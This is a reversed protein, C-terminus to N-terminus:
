KEAVANYVKKPQGRKQGAAHVGEFLEDKFNEAAALHYNEPHNHGRTMVWKSEADIHGRGKCSGSDKDICNFKRSM